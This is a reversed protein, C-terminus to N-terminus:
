FQDFHICVANSVLINASNFSVPFGTALQASQAYLNVGAFSPPISALAPWSASGGGVIGLSSAVEPLTIYAGCGPMGIVGLDIGPLSGTSILTINILGSPDINSTNITLPQGASPRNALSIV